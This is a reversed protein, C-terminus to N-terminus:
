LRPAERTAFPLRAASHHGQGEPPPGPSRAHGRDLLLSPLRGRLAARVHLPLCDAPLPRRLSRLPDEHRERDRVPRGERSPGLAARAEEQGARRWPPHAGEGGEAARQAGGAVERAHRDQAGDDVHRGGTQTRLATWIILLIALSANLARACGSRRSMTSRSLPPTAVTPSTVRSKPTELGVM